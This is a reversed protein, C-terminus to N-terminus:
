VSFVRVCFWYTWVILVLQLPFRVLLYRPGISHGGFPIRQVAAYVNSPFIAILYLVVAWGVYPAPFVVFAIAILVEVAGSIYILTRRAPVFAPLMPVMADTKLFHGIATFLFVAAILCKLRM